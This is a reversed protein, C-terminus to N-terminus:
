RLYQSTPAPSVANANMKEVVPAIAAAANQKQSRPFGMDVASRFWCGVGCCRSFKVKTTCCCCPAGLPRFPPVLVHMHLHPVSTFPPIHFGVVASNNTSPTIGSSEWLSALASEAADMMHQTLAAHVDGVDLNKVSVIHEKPIVLFHPHGPKERIDRIVYVLEDEFLKRSSFAAADQGAIACFPCDSPAGQPGQFRSNCLGM